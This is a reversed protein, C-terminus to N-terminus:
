RKLPETSPTGVALASEYDTFNHPQSGSLFVAVTWGEGSRIKRATKGDSEFLKVIEDAQSESMRGVKRPRGPRREWTAVFDRINPELWLPGAALQAFPKPFHESRALESARQRSVDLMSALESIGIVAPFTPEEVQREFENWEHVELGVMPYEPLGAKKAASEASSKARILADIPSSDELTLRVSFRGLGNLDVATGSVSPYLNEDLAEAFDPLRDNIHAPSDPAAGAFEIRVAWTEFASM